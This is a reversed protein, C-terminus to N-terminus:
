TREGASWRNDFLVAEALLRERNMSFYSEFDIKITHDTHWERMGIARALNELREDAVVPPDIALRNM